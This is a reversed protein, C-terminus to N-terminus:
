EKLIYTNDQKVALYLDTNYLDSFFKVIKDLQRLTTTNNDLKLIIETMIDSRKKIDDNTTIFYFFFYLM